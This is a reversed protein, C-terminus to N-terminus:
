RRWHITQNERIWTRGTMCIVIKIDPFYVYSYTSYLTYPGLSRDLLLHIAMFYYTVLLARYFPPFSWWSTGLFLEYYFCFFFCLKYYFSFFCVLLSLFVTLVTTSRRVHKILMQFGHASKLSSDSSSVKIDTRYLLNATRQILFYYAIPLFIYPPNL